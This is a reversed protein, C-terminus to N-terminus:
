RIHKLVLGDIKVRRWERDATLIPVGLKLALAMCTRDGLGRGYQRTQGHLGAAAYAAEADHPHVDLRLGDVIERVIALELGDRLLEKVMEQLNVASIAADGICPLVAKGGAEGKVFALAASSDLVVSTM